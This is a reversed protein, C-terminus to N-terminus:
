KTTSSPPILVSSSSDRCTLNSIGQRRMAMVIPTVVAPGNRPFILMLTFRWKGGDLTSSAPAYTVEIVGLHLLAVVQERLLKSIVTTSFLHCSVERDVVIRMTKVEGSQNLICRRMPSARYTCGHRHSWFHHEEAWPRQQQSTLHAVCRLLGPECNLLM